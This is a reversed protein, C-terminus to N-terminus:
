RVLQVFGKYTKEPTSILYFYTGEVCLMGSTTRGDWKYTGQTTFPPAIGAVLVGWRNYIQVQTKEPLNNLVWQENIGDNNPTFINAISAEDFPKTTDCDIVSIDDVFYYSFPSFPAGWYITDSTSISNFNGLTLYKEGGNATYVGSILQWNLTDTYYYNPPSEIHAPVNIENTIPLSIQSNSFHAGLKALAVNSSRNLVVYFELCYKHNKKLSDLLEIELYEISFDGLQLVIIGAYANGTNAYQFDSNIPVGMTVSCSNYYDPTSLTPNLWNQAFNIQGPSNPCQITDEFSWNPVFNQAKQELSLFFLGVILIHYIKNM